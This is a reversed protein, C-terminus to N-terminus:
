MSASGLRHPLMENGVSLCAQPWGLSGEWAHKIGQHLNLNLIM